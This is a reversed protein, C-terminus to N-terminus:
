ANVLFSRGCEDVALKLNKQNNLLFEDMQGLTTIRFETINTMNRGNESYINALKELTERDYGIKIGQDNDNIMKLENIIKVIYDEKRPDPINIAITRRNMSEKWEKSHEGVDIFDTNGTMIAFLKNTNVYSDGTKITGGDCVTYLKQVVEAPYKDVDDLLLGTNDPNKKLAIALPSYKTIEMYPQGSRWSGFLQSAVSVKEDTSDMTSLFIQIPQRINMINFIRRVMSTKGCGPNGLLNLVMTPASPKTKKLTVIGNIYDKIIGIEHEAWPYEKVLNAFGERIRKNDVSKFSFNSGKVYSYAENDSSMQTFYKVIMPMTVAVSMAVSSVLASLVPTSMSETKCKGSIEFVCLAALVSSLIKKNIKNM